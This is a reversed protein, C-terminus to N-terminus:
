KNRPNAALWDNIFRDLVNRLAERLPQTSDGRIIGMQSDDWTCVGQQSGTRQVTAVEYLQITVAFLISDNSELGVLSIMLMPPKPVEKFQSTSGINLGERRLRLEVETKLTAEPIMRPLPSGDEIVVVPVVGRLGRLAIQNGDLQRSSIPLCILFLSITIRLVRM